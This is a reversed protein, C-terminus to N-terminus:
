LSVGNLQAQIRQFELYLAKAADPNAKPETEALLTNLDDAVATLAELLSGIRKRNTESLVRGQKARMSKLEDAREQWAAAADLVFKAHEELSMGALLLSKSGVTAPNLGWNVDSIDYFKVERINRVQREGVTEFDSRTVDYAYSMEEIAGAKIGALVENGRPTDLYTRQVEVGGTADPAFGLVSTPLEARSLEKIYDIAAIPPAGSDHMWLFRARSRGNISPSAASGPWSRDGGDDVNGHVMFVGTVTRDTVSKMFHPTAKQEM